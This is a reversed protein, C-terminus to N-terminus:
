RHLTQRCLYNEVYDKVGQEISIFAQLYGKSRLKTMDAKTYSQYARADISSPLPVYNIAQNKEMADFICSAVDNFSRAEGTGVNFIGSVQPNRLLWMLVNVCDRVDIFDRKQEGNEYRPDTSEFLNVHGTDQIQYFFTPIVSQQAGKHCENPGYVNFFKLGAWQPPSSHNENMTHSIAIRDFIAKSWGYPNQPRLKLLYDLSEDDVFGHAGDGYTAASSAYLFRVRQQSCWQWLDLSLRLNHKLIFDVDTQITSSSAGLHIVTEISSAHKELFPYMQAPSIVDFFFSSALNRWKSHSGLEDCIIIRPFEQPYQTLMHALNSGIFGAGGTILIM